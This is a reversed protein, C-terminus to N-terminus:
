RTMCSALLFHDFADCSTLLLGRVRDPHRATFIQAIAGGTDSGFVIADREGLAELLDGLSDAVAEPHLLDRRKVPVRHAGLPLHPQIVRHTRAIEPVIPDWLRGDVLVGHVLLVAPGSGTITVDISGYPLEVTPM